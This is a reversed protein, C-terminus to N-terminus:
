STNASYTQITTQATYNQEEEKNNAYHQIYYTYNQKQQQLNHITHRMFAARTTWGTKANRGKGTVKKMIATSQKILVNLTSQPMQLAECLQKQTHWIFPEADTLKSTIYQEVDAEWENYHSRTRETRTKKHKYWTNTTSAVRITHNPIYEDLLAYIYTTSPGSYKGSYASQIITQVMKHPLPNAFRSNLEDLFDYTRTQDWDDAFCALALTFITNNRGLQGKCGKIHNAHVLAEFWASTTHSTKHANKPMHMTQQLDDDYRMSWDILQQLSYTQDLQVHVVNTATPLRFFGFDNCYQDADIIQLSHKINRAIRKAISLTKFHQDNSIFLPENLSFYLQYGRDSAVICTPIGISHDLCALLMQPLSHKTTDIDVVFTNIQKLHREEFGAVYNKQRDKYTYTRYVNPTFHSLTPAHAILADLSTVISGKVGSATFDSKSRVTFVAGYARYQNMKSTNQQIDGHLITHLLQATTVM